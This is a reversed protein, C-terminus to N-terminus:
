KQILNLQAIMKMVKEMNDIIKIMLLIGNKTQFKLEDDDSSELLNIIKHAEM